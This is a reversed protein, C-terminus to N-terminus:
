HAPFKQKLLGLLLGVCFGIAGFILPMCILALFALATGANLGITMLDIVLGGISYLIGLALGVMAGWRAGKTAFKSSPRM